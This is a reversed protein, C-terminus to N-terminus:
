QQLTHLKQLFCPFLLKGSSHLTNHSSLPLHLSYSSGFSFCQYFPLLPRSIDSQNYSLTPFMLLPPCHSPPVANRQPTILVHDASPLAPLFPCASLQLSLVSMTHTQINPPHLASAHLSPLMKFSFSLHFCCLLSTFFCLSHFLPQHCLLPLYLTFTFLSFPVWARDYTCAPPCLVCYSYSFIM